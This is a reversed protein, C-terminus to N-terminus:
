SFIDLKEVIRSEKKIKKTQNEQCLQNHFIVHESMCFCGLAFLNRFALKTMAKEIIIFQSIHIRKNQLM